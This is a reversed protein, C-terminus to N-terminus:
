IGYITAGVLWQGHQTGVFCRASIVGFEELSRESHPAKHLRSFDPQRCINGLSEHRPQMSQSANLDYLSPCENLVRDQWWAVRSPAHIFPSIALKSQGLSVNIERQVDASEKQEQWGCTLCTPSNKSSAQYDIVAGKCRPCTGTQITTM